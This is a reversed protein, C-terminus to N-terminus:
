QSLKSAESTGLFSLKFRKPALERILKRPNGEVLRTEVIFDM